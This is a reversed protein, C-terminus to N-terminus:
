HITRTASDHANADIHQLRENCLQARLAHCVAALTVRAATFVFDNLWDHCTGGVGSGFLATRAYASYCWSLADGVAALQGPEVYPLWPTAISACRFSAKFDDMWEIALWHEISYAGSNQLAHRVFSAANM